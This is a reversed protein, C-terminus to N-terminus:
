LEPYEIDPSDFKELPNEKFYAERIPRCVREYHVYEWYAEQRAEAERDDLWQNFAQIDEKNLINEIKM